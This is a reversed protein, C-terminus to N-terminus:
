QNEEAVLALEREHEIALELDAHDFEEGDTCRWTATVLQLRSKYKNKETKSQYAGAAPSFYADPILNSLKVKQWGGGNGISKSALYPDYIVAYNSQPDYAYM